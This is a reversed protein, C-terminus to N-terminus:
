KLGPFATLLLSPPLPDCHNSAGVIVCCCAFWKRGVELKRGFYLHLFGVLHQTWLMGSEDLVHKIMDTDL